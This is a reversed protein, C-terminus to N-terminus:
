SVSPKLAKGANGLVELSYGSTIKAEAVVFRVTMWCAVLVTGTTNTCTESGCL